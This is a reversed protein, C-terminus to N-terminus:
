NSTIVIQVALQLSVPQDYLKEELLVSMKGGKTLPRKNGPESYVNKCKGDSGGPTHEGLKSTSAIESYLAASAAPEEPQCDTSMDSCKAEVEGKAATISEEAHELPKDPLRLQGESISEDRM